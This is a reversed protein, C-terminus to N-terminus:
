EAFAALASPDPIVWFTVEVEREDRLFQGEMLLVHEGVGGAVAAVIDLIAGVMDVMVAPPTPRADLKTRRALANLFFSASLNGVEALASRELTGLQTTTGTPQEMLLDVLELAKEYPMVLMFQGVVGGTAQLYIGVAETEPGGVLSAITALPVLRLRPENVTIRAGVMSSLGDAASRIGEAALIKLLDHLHDDFTLTLTM